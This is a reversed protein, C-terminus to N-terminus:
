PAEASVWPNSFREDTVFTEDTLSHLFEILDAEEQATLVFGTLFESKLPSKSGNGAYPGEAITRGGAAYHAIAEQLTAVSGDHMYPATLAINRLTPARFRGMDSPKGSVELVGRNPAPYAGNGDLNYLATNHFTAEDFTTGEHTVSDAFNFNGHCHFCELRESFFLDRGRKASDSLAGSDGQYTYRDYASNGSILTREFSALAQVVRQLTFPDADQPFAEKMLVGYTPEAKLRQLMEQEMGALGLEVPNEGFMPTLAQDELERVLPNAWTLTRMYAVNMLGMSGRPHIEGTSGEARALGDTFAKSQDHCSACSFTQNGSLRTDYFLHRGAQVKAPTMPNDAPVRPTPFGAPLNWDYGESASSEDDGCAASLLWLGAVAGRVWSRM